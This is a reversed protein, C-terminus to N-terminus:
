ICRGEARCFIQDEQPTLGGPPSPTYFYPNPLLPVPNRPITTLPPEQIRACVLEGELDQWCSSHPPPAMPVCGFAILAAFVGVVVLVVAGWLFQWLDTM